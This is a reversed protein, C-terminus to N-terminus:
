AVSSGCRAGRYPWDSCWVEDTTSGRNRRPVHTGGPCHGGSARAAPGPRVRSRGRKWQIPGSGLKPNSADSGSGFRLSPPVSTFPNRFMLENVSSKLEKWVSGVDPGKGPKPGDCLFLAPYFDFAGPPSADTKASYGMTIRIFELLDAPVDPDGRSATQRRPLSQSRNGYRM